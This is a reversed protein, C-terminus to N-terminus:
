IQKLIFESMLALVHRKAERHPIHGCNEVAALSSFDSTATCITEAQALSGYQDDKGQIVLMPVDIEALIDEINWKRFWDALWTESWATFVATTNEGHYTYLKELKGQHWANTAAQIGAITLDDVYIHAAETIIGQLNLHHRTGYILAITGGDSHGILLHKQDPILLKILEPLEQDASTHLYHLDRLTETSSSKGYGIRDYILGPCETAECLLHPYDEWMATCGLGEHLFILCPNDTNGVIREYFITKNEGLEIYPM